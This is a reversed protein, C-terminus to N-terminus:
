ETSLTFPRLLSQYQKWPLSILISYTTSSFPPPYFSLVADIQLPRSFLTNTYNSSTLSPVTIVRSTTNSCLMIEFGCKKNTQKKRKGANHEIKGDKKELM